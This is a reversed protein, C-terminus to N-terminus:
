HYLDELLQACRQLLALEAQTVTVLQEAHKGMRVIADVGAPKTRLLALATESATQM